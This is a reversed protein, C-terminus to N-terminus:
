ATRWPPRALGAIVDDLGTPPGVVGSTERAIRDCVALTAADLVKSAPTSSRWDDWVSTQREVLSLLDRVVNVRLFWLGASEGHGFLQPAAGGERCALWAQGANIFKGPPLDTIDFDIGLRSHLVDDLQADALAWRRSAGHWYECVWHDEHPKSFYSAFGCRVRAPMGRHRLLGCLMLAYDRCTGSSRQAPPRAETLPRAAAPIGLGLRQEVRRTEREVAFGAPLGYCGLWDIHVLLGQVLRCLGAVDGPLAALHVAQAGPDTWASQRAYFSVAANM